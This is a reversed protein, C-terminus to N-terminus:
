TYGFVGCGILMTMISLCYEINSAPTIDGYGVTVMTVISFYFALLYQISWNEETKNIKQLWTQDNNEHLALSCWTSTFILPYPTLSNLIEPSPGPHSKNHSSPPRTLLFM